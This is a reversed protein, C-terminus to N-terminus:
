FLSDSGFLKLRKIVNSQNQFVMRISFILLKRAQFKYILLFFFNFYKDPCEKHLLYKFSLSVFFFISLISYSYVPLIFDHWSGIRKLSRSIIAGGKFRISIRKYKLHASGGGTRLYSSSDQLCRLLLRRKSQIYLSRWGKRM